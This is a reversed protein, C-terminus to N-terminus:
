KIEVNKVVVRKRKSVVWLTYVVVLVLLSWIDGIPFAYQPNEGQTNFWALFEEWTLGPMNGSKIAEEFAARLLAQDYYRVGDYEYIFAEGEIGQLWMDFGNNTGGGIAGPARLLPSNTSHEFKALTLDATTGIAHYQGGKPRVIVAASSVNSSNDWQITPQIAVGSVGGYSASSYSRVGGNGSYGVSAASASSAAMNVVEKFSTTYFVGGNYSAAPVASSSRFDRRVVHPTPQIVIRSPEILSNVSRMQIRNPVSVPGAVAFSAYLLLAGAMVGRCLVGKRNFFPIDARIVRFFSCVM